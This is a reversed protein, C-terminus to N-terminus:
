NLFGALTLFAAVTLTLGALQVAIRGSPSVQLPVPKRVQWMVGRLRDELTRLAHTLMEVSKVCGLPDTIMLLGVFLLPGTIWLKVFIEAAAEM